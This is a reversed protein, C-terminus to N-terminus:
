RKRVEGDYISLLDRIYKEINDLEAAREYAGQSKVQYYNRDDIMHCIENVKHETSYNLFGCKDNVLRPIGGVPNGVVPLGFAMAEVIVMGFGEWKSPIVLIGGETMYDYPDDVFGQIEIVNTLQSDEVYQRVQERLEGDGLMRAKIRYGKKVIGSVIQVFELPNKQETLRGVFLLDTSYDKKKKKLIQQLDIPNGIVFGKTRMKKGYWCEDFVSDSVALIRSYKYLMMYYILSKMTRKKMRPDNNHLHSIVPVKKAALASMVSAVADNAHIIDPEVEKIAKKLNHINVKPLPYFKIKEEVLKERIRGDLSVYYAEVEPPLNKIITIIVNEAGSFSGTNLVYMVRMNDNGMFEEM